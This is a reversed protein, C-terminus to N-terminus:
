LPIETFWHASKPHKGAVVDSFKQNLLQCIPGPIDGQGIIRRDVSHAFAIQAATGTLILEDCAYVMSRDIQEFRLPIKEEKILEIVTRRTIGDLMQSGVQPAIVEGNTVIFINTVSAEDLYGQQDLILAEDYGNQRAETTALASNLYCGGAKAKTPLVDDSFKRWSSIMMRLGKSQEYYRQLEMIYIALDFDNGIFCPGLHPTESFVFPRIYFDHQPKNEQVLRTIIKLFEDWAMNFPIGLIKVGNMLRFFHDQLRFIRNRGDRSYGRIGALCTMGYQLSHSAISINADKSPVINKRFHAFPLLTTQAM